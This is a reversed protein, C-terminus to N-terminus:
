GAPRLAPTIPGYSEWWYSAAVRRAAYLAEGDSRVNIMGHLRRKFLLRAQANGELAAFNVGELTTADVGTLSIEPAPEATEGTEVFAAAIETSFILPSLSRSAKGVGGVFSARPHGHDPDDGSSIVSIQPRVAEIFPPHYEASGHHPAKLVHADMKAALGPEAMLHQAGPVNLDGSFLVSVKNYNLRMVVSNGNITHSKDDFWLFVPQGNLLGLRPALIDLGIKPDGIDLAGVRSDVASYTTGATVAANRWTEFSSSLPLGALEALRDHRTVLFTGSSDLDGLMTSFAGEQFTAIGSQVIRHVRIRPHELIPVLGKLHDDDAHSLVLLDIDVSSEAKDLRYKWALFGLARRNVGGDILIKKRGPTVIFTSDGQGVDIFYLEFAPNPSLHDKRIYGGRGRVAVPLRGNVEPGTIDAEDGFILVASWQQGSESKYLRSTKQNIYVKPM